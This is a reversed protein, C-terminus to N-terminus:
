YIITILAVDEFSVRVLLIFEIYQTFVFAIMEGGLM